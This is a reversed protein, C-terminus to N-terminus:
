KPRDLIEKESVTKNFIQVFRRKKHGAKRGIGAKACVKVARGKMFELEEAIRQM